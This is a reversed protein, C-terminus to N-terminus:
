RDFNLLKVHNMEEFYRFYYYLKYNVDIGYDTNPNYDIYNDYLGNNNSTMYRLNWEAVYFRNKQIYYDNSYFSKPPKTLLWTEFGPDLIILRYELSDVSLTDTKTGEREKKKQSFGVTQIAVLIVLILFVTKKM